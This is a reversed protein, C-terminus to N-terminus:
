YNSPMPMDNFDYVVRGELVRMRTGDFEWRYHEGNEGQWNAYSGNELFPALTEFLIDEQGTKSDFYISFSLPNTDDVMVENVFEEIIEYIDTANRCTETNTWSYWHYEAVNYEGEPRPYSGGYAKAKLAADTFMQEKVAILARDKDEVSKFSLKNNLAEVYYGM